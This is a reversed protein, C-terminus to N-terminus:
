NAPRKKQRGIKCIENMPCEECLPKQAKCLYRGFLVFISNIKYWNERDYLRELDLSIKYPDKFNTLELRQAVRAVHTDVAIGQNARYIENLFVNATKKGVGPLRLLDKEVAPVKGNFDSVLLGSAEILHRAKTKFFNISSILKELDLVSANAFSEIDAYKSFLSKTVKNVQIDTTQASLMVCVLFQFETKWNELETKPEPYLHELKEFVFKAREKIKAM